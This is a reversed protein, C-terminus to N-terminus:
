HDDSVLTEMKGALGLGALGLQGFAHGPVLNAFRRAAVGGNQGTERRVPLQQELPARGWETELQRSTGRSSITLAGCEM